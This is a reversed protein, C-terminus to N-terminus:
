EHFEIYMYKNVLKKEDENSKKLAEAGVNHWNYGVQASAKLARNLKKINETNAIYKITKLKNSGLRCLIIEKYHPNCEFKKLINQCTNNGFKRKLFGSIKGDFEVIVNMAKKNNLFSLSENDVSYKVKAIPNSYNGANSLYSRLETETIESESIIVYKAHLEKLVKLIGDCFENYCALYDFDRFPILVSDDYPHRCLIVGDDVMQTEPYNNLITKENIYEFLNHNILTNVENSKRRMIYLPLRDMGESIMGWQILAAEEEPTVIGDAKILERLAQTIETKNPFEIAKYYGLLDNFTIPKKLLDDFKNAECGSSELYKKLLGLEAEALDGDIRSLVISMIYIFRENDKNPSKYITPSIDLDKNYNMRSVAYIAGAIPNCAALAVIKGLTLWSM